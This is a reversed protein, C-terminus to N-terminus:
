QGDASTLGFNSLSTILQALQNSTLGSVANVVVGTVVSLINSTGAPFENTITQRQVTLTVLLPASNTLTQRVVPPAGYLGVKQNAATGIQYGLATSKIQTVAYVATVFLAVGALILISTKKNM